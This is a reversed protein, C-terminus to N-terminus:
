EDEEEKEDLYGLKILRKRLEEEFDPPEEGSDAIIKALVYQDRFWPLLMKLIIWGSVAGIITLTILNM